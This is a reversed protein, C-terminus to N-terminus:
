GTAARQSRPMRTVAPCLLCINLTNSLCSINEQKVAANHFCKLIETLAISDTTIAASSLSDSFQVFPTTIANLHRDLDIMIELDVRGDARACRMM